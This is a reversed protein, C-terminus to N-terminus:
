VIGRNAAWIAIKTGPFESEYATTDTGALHAADYSTKLTKMEGCCYRGRNAPRSVTLGCLVKANDIGQREASAIYSRM